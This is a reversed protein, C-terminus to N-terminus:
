IKKYFRRTIRRSLDIFYGMHMPICYKFEYFIKYLMGSRHYKWTDYVIKEEMSFQDNCNLELGKKRQRYFWEWVFQCKMFCQLKMEPVVKKSESYVKMNVLAKCLEDRMNWSSETIQRYVVMNDPIYIVNGYKIFYCTILNDDFFNSNILNEKDKYVNRFLFSDAHIWLYAWYVSNKIIVPRDAVRCMTQRRNPDDDWLLTVPHGCATCEPYKELLDVQKQLKYIDTYYDDGDLFTIYKGRSHKLLTWRNNSVRVIPEYKQGQERPMRIVTCIDSYKKQWELLEEYTGDTSGDDGCIVEYKFDTKQSFIGNLSDYIYKKQNYFTVMVTVM